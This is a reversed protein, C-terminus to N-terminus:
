VKRMFPKNQSTTTPKTRVAAPITQYTRRLNLSRCSASSSRM